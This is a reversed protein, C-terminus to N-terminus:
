AGRRSVAVAEASPFSLTWSLGEPAFDLQVKGGTSAAVMSEIVTHGFGKRIPLAVTPGGREKWHLLVQKSEGASEFRWRVNLLGAPVSLAGFKLSTSVLEHLALGIGQSVESSLQVEPGDLQVQPMAKGALLALHAYILEQLSAGSWDENVLLDHSATQRAIAQVVALLNKSRHTIERMLFRVKEESAKRETIDSVISILRRATGDSRRAVVRGRGAFWFMQGDPHVVRYEAEFEDQRDAIKHFEGMLHRDSPHLAARYEDTEGGVHGRGHPLKLGFLAMGEDSWERTNSELDTVWSGMRGASLASRYRTESEQLASLTVKLEETQRHEETVRQALVDMYAAREQNVKEARKFALWVSELEEVQYQPPQLSNGTALAEAAAKLSRVPESIRRAVVSALALSVVVSGLASSGLLAFSRRLPAELIATPVAVVSTWGSLSSRKFSNAVEVGERTVNDFLGSTESGKAAEVLAPRAPQGALDVAGTSRVLYVGNRDIIASIWASPLGAENFLGKLRELGFGASLVRPIDTGVRIPVSVIFVPMKSDLSAEYNSVITKGSFAPMLFAMDSRIPSAQGVHAASSFSQRGGRETVSIAILSREDTSTRAHQLLNDFKGERLDPSAALALLAATIGAIERDMLHTLSTAVELRQAEIVHREANAYKVGVFITLLLLPVVIAAILIVLLTLISKSGFRPLPIKEIIRLALEM